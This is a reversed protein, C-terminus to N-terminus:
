NRPKTRWVFAIIGLAAIWLPWLGFRSVWWAYPTLGTRGQVEGNLVGETMRPLEATINGEHDIIATSGTNTARVFPRQFEQARMRSINLHQDIAISDGFWGLNSVNAFLTPARAPDVFRAGLEEGFLDEYCINAAIRQGQWEFSSQGLGGRNFDGLPINMMRTFWKFFPPIFEGFPVLHHKDYQWVESQGPRLGVVSNTYGQQYNGLPIGFLAAQNNSAYSRQLEVWYGQPLQNPLLPLATEPAVVLAGKSARLQDAYWQLAKRVGTGTEFKEDQPINGQLLSVTLAGAPQTWTQLSTPAWAGLLLFAVAALLQWLLRPGSVLWSGVLAAMWAALATVGYMGIVPIYFTLPGALHAYGTAGWGFGTLWTGRALEAVTWAAAFLTSALRPCRQRLHWYVVLAAVYYLGLAAALIVVALAALVAALDAYTHMAIFLWWFVASLWITAYVAGATAAQQKNRCQVVAFVLAAQAAIQLWWLTDGGLFFVDFPWSISAANACAAIFVIAFIYRFRKSLGSDSVSLRQKVRQSAYGTLGQVM